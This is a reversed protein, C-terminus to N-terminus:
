SNYTCQLFSGCRTHFKCFNVLKFILNKWLLSLKSPFHFVFKDWLTPFNLLHVIIKDWLTEVKTLQASNYNRRLIDFVELSSNCNQKGTDFVNKLQVLFEHWLTSYNSLHVVLKDSLTSTKTLQVKTKDWLTSFNSLRIVIIDGLTSFNTLQISIKDWNKCFADVLRQIYM